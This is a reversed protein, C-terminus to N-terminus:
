VGQSQKIIQSFVISDNKKNKNNKAYEFVLKNTISDKYIVDQSKDLNLDKKAIIQYQANSFLSFLILM